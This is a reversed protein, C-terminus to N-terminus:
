PEFGLNVPAPPLNPHDMGTTPVDNGVVDLKFPRADVGGKGDLLFGFAIATAADPVDLVISCPTWDSTGRLPHRDMNDFGLLKSSTGDIRMWMQAKDANQTRLAGTLRVRKGRYATADITQMLTGFGNAGPRAHIFAQWGDRVNPAQATGMDYDRPSSGAVHWGNPLTAANAISTLALAALSALLRMKM